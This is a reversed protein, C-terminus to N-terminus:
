RGLEIPVINEDVVVRVTTGEVVPLAEPGAACARGISAASRSMEHLRMVRAFHVDAMRADGARLAERTLRAEERGTRLAVDVRTLAEDLCAVGRTSKQARAKRLLQRVQESTADMAAVQRDARVSVSASPDAAAAGPLLALLSLPFIAAKRAIM